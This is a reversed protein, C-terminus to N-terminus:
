LNPYFEMSEQTTFQIFYNFHDGGEGAAFNFHHVGSTM